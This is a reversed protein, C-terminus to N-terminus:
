SNKLKQMMSPVYNPKYGLEISIKERTKNKIKQYPEGSLTQIQKLLTEEIKYHFEWDEILKQNIEKMKAIRNSIFIAAVGLVGTSLVTALSTIVASIVESNM